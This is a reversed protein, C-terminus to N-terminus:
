DVIMFYGLYQHLLTNCSLKASVEAVIGILADQSVLTEDGSNKITVHLRKKGFAFFLQFCTGQDMGDENQDLQAFYRASFEFINDPQQRIVEKAYAKM